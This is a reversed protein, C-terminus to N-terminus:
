QPIASTPESTRIALASQVATLFQPNALPDVVFAAGCRRAETELMSDSCHHTVIVPTGPRELKTLIALHVGNFDDLRVDAILLDPEVCDLAKRAAQFSSASVVACGADYLLAEARQLYEPNSHVLVVLSSV